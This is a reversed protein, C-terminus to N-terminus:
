ASLCLGNGYKPPEQGLWTTGKECNSWSMAAAVTGLKTQIVGSRQWSPWSQEVPVASLHSDCVTGLIRAVDAQVSPPTSTIVQSSPSSLALWTSVNTMWGPVIM